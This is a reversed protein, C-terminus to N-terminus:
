ARGPLGRMQNLAREQANFAAYHATIGPDSHGMLIQLSHLDHTAELFSHAFSIRLRHPYFGAVGANRAIRNMMRRAQERNMPWIEGRPYAHYEIIRALLSPPPSVWREKHGKGRILILGRDSYIDQRRIGVLESIRLGCAAGVELLLREGEDKCAALLLGMAEHELPPRPQRRDKRVTLGITPNDERTGREIQCIMFAKVASLRVHATSRSVTSLQLALFGEVDNRDADAPMVGFESCWSWFARLHQSYTLATDKTRGRTLLYRRFSEAAKEFGEVM